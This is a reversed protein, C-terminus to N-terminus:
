GPQAGVERASALATLGMPNISMAAGTLIRRHYDIQGLHFACHVALHVLLDAGQFELGAVVEPFRAELEHPTLRRLTGLVAAETAALEALLAARSTPPAGFEAERDRQYGTGGLCAGLFHQLNGCLHRTLVGGSNPVGPASQWIAAEDPYAELERRLAALDRRLIASLTESLM